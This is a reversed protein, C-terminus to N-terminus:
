HDEKLFNFINPMGQLANPLGFLGLLGLGVVITGATGGTPEIRPPYYQAPLGSAIWRKTYWQSMNGISRYYADYGGQSGCTYIQAPDDPDDSNPRVAIPFSREYTRLIHYENIDCGAFFFQSWWQFFSDDWYNDSQSIVWEDETYEEKEPMFIVGGDEDDEKEMDPISAPIETYADAKPIYEANSEFFTSHIWELFDFETYSAPNIIPPAASKDAKMPEPSTWLGSLSSYPIQVGQSILAPLQKLAEKLTYSSDAALDLFDAGAEILPFNVIENERVLRVTFKYTDGVKEDFGLWMKVFPDLIM